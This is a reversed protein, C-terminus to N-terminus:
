MIRVVSDPESECQHAKLEIEMTQPPKKNADLYFDSATVTASVLRAHDGNTPVKHVCISLAIGPGPELMQVKAERDVSFKKAPSSNDLIDYHANIQLNTATGRGVNQVVAFIFEKQHGGEGYETIATRYNEDQIAVLGKMAKLTPDKTNITRFLLNPSYSFRLTQEMLNTSDTAAKAMSQNQRLMEYTILAYVATVACIVATVYLNARAPDVNTHWVWYLLACLVVLGTLLRAYAGRSM